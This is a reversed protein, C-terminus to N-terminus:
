FFSECPPPQEISCGEMVDKREKTARGATRRGGALRLGLARCVSHHNSAPSHTTCSTHLRRSGRPPRAAGRPGGARRPSGSPGTRPRRLCPAVRRPTGPRTTPPGGEDARAPSPRPSPPRPPRGRSVRRLSGAAPSAGPRPRGWGSRTVSIAVSRCRSGPPPLVRCARRGVLGFADRARQPGGCRRV